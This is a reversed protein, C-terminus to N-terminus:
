DYFIFLTGGAAEIHKLLIEDLMIYDWDDNNFWGNEDSWGMLEAIDAKASNMDINPVCELIKMCYDWDEDFGLSNVERMTYFQSYRHQIELLRYTPIMEM